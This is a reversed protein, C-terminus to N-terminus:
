AETAAALAAELSQSLEELLAEFVSYLFYPSVISDTSDGRYIATAVPPGTKEAPTQGNAAAANAFVRATALIAKAETVGRTYSREHIEIELHRGGTQHPSYELVKSDVSVAAASLEALEGVEFGHDGSTRDTEVRTGVTSIVLPLEDSVGLSLSAGVEARHLTACGASLVIVSLLAALRLIGPAITSAAGCAAAASTTRYAAAASPRASTPPATPGGAGRLARRRRDSWM